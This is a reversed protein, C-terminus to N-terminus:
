QNLFNVIDSKFSLIDENSASGNNEVMQFTQEETIYGNRKLAKYLVKGKKNSRAAPLDSLANPDVIISNLLGQEYCNFLEKEINVFPLFKIDSRTNYDLTNYKDKDLVTIVNQPFSFFGDIKNRDMLDVVNSAGGIYIIKYKYFLTENRLFYEMYKVLMNDETLIYRDYDNFQFLLSKIYNYSKNEIQINNGIKDMYYLEESKMKKMIALSHTTFIINSSYETILNRLQEILEVQASSDLSIDIEDIVILKQGEKILRYINILFYEGSSLYDERIYKNDDLLIFYYNKGKYSIEKLNNFKNNKYITNLFTILETPETYSSSQIRLKIEDNAESISQLFSFRKGYPIPLETNLKIRIDEINDNNELIIEDEAIKKYNFVYDKEDITYTIKSNENLIFQSLSTENFTNVSNFTKIAKILTTKGIGNKGVLCILKNVNLNIEYSLENIHQIYEIKIKFKEM